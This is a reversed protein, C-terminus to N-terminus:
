VQGTRGSAARRSLPSFITQVFPAGDALGEGILRLSELHEALVGKKPDLVSLKRWDSPHKIVYDMPEPPLHPNGSPRFTCGWDEVFYSARPNVKMYDWNYKKHNELMAEALGQPSWEKLFSHGWFSTPVHDVDQGQLAARVRETKNM